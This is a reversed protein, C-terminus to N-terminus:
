HPPAKNETDNINLIINEVIINLMTICLTTISLTMIGLTTINLTMAGIPFHSHFFVNTM